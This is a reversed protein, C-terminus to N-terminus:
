ADESEAQEARRLASVVGHGRIGSADWSHDVTESIRLTNGTHSWDVDDREADLGARELIALAGETSGFEGQAYGYGVLEIRTVLENAMGENSDAKM